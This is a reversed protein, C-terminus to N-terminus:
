PHPNGEWSDLEEDPLPEDFTDSLDLHPLQGIERDQIAVQKGSRRLRDPVDRDPHGHDASLDKM